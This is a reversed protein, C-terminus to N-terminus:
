LKLERNLVTADFINWTVNHELVCGAMNTLCLLKAITTRQHVTDSSYNPVGCMETLM